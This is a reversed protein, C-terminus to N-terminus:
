EVTGRCKPKKEEKESETQKIHPIEVSDVSHIRFM